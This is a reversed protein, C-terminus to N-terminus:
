EKAIVEIEKWGVWSPSRTTEIRVYRVAKIPEPFILTLLQLDTTVGRFTHAEFFADEVEPGKILVRHTTEGPPSQGILLRLETITYSEGLDIEIWQPAFDGAGWYTDPNGDVAGEPQAQNSRSARVPKGYAVNAGPGETRIGLNAKDDLYTNLLWTFTYAEAEPL